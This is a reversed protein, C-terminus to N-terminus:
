TGFKRCSTEEKLIGKDLIQEGKDRITEEIKIDIACLDDQASKPTTLELVGKLYQRYYLARARNLAAKEELKKYLTTESM